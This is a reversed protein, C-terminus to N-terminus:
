SLVNEKLGLYALVDSTQPSFVPRWTVQYDVACKLCLNVGKGEVNYNEGTMRGKCADCKEEVLRENAEIKVPPLGRRIIKM